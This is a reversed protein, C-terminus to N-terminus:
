REGGVHSVAIKETHFGLSLKAFTKAATQYLTALSLWRAANDPRASGIPMAVTMDPVAFEHQVRVASGIRQSMVHRDPEVAINTMTAIIRGAHIGAMQKKPGGSVVHCVHHRLSSLRAPLTTGASTKTGVLNAGDSRVVANVALDGCVEANPSAGYGIDFIARCPTM